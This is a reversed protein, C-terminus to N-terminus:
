HSSSSSINLSLSFRVGRLVNTGKLRALHKKLDGFFLLCERFLKLGFSPYLFGGYKINLIGRVSQFIIVVLALTVIGLANFGLLLASIAFPIGVELLETVITYYEKTSDLVVIDRFISKPVSKIDNISSSSASVSDLISESYLYSSFSFLILFGLLTRPVGWLDTSRENSTRLEDPLCAALARNAGSGSGLWAEETYSKYKEREKRGAM